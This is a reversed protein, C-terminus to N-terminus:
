VKGNKEQSAKVVLREIYRQLSMRADWAAEKAIFHIKPSMRVTQSKPREITM